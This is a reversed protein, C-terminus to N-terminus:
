LEKRGNYWPPTSTTYHNVHELIIDYNTFEFELWGIASVKLSM